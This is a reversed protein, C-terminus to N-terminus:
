TDIIGYKEKERRSFTGPPRILSSFTLQYDLKRTRLEGERM